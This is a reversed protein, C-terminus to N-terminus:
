KPSISAMFGTFAGIQPIEKEPEKTRVSLVILKIYFGTSHTCCKYTKLFSDCVFKCMGTAHIFMKKRISESKRPSMEIAKSPPPAGRSKSKYIKIAYQESTFEKLKKVDCRKVVQNSFDEDDKIYTKPQIFMM